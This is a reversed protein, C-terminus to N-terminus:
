CPPNGENEPLEIEEIEGEEGGAEEEEGGVEEVPAEEPAEEEKTGAEISAEASEMSEGGEAPTFLEQSLVEPRVDVVDGLQTDSKASVFQGSNLQRDGAKNSISISGSDVGFFTEGKVINAEFITGRVGITAVPTKVQYGGPNEKVISGSLARFGGKVLESRYENKGEKKFAYSNIRYQTKEILNLLGGDTFKIQIKSAAGVSIVDSIFIEAGRALRRKNAEVKGEVSIVKGIQEASFISGMFLICCLIASSIKM